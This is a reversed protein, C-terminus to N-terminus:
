TDFSYICVMLASAFNVASYQWRAGSDAVKLCRGVPGLNERKRCSLDSCLVMCLDDESSRGDLLM